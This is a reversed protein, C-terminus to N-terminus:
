LAAWAPAATFALLLLFPGLSNMVRDILSSRWRKGSVRTISPSGHSLYSEGFYWLTDCGMWDQSTIRAGPRSFFARGLGMLGCTRSSFLQTPHWRLLAPQLFHTSSNVSWCPRPSSPIM